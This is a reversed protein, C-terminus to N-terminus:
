LAVLFICTGEDQLIWSIMLFCDQERMLHQQNSHESPLYINKRLVSLLFHDLVVITRSHILLGFECCRLGMM